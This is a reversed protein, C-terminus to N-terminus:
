EGKKEYNPIKGIKDHITETDQLVKEKANISFIEAIVAIIPMHTAGSM